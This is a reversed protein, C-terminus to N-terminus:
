EMLQRLKELGRHLLSKVTGESKGLIEGIERLHKHEFYRLAIVEQYRFSLRSINEHLCLFEEHKRLEEEARALEDEPSNDSDDTVERSQELHIRRRRRERYSNAVENAAIRYLWSSFPVGRWQFRGINKLAKLFVQSTVDRAVEVDATRRL